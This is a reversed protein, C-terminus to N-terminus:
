RKVRKLRCGQSPLSERECYSNFSSSMTVYALSGERISRNARRGGTPAAAAAAAAVSAVSASGSMEGPPGGM